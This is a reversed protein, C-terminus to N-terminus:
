HGISFKISYNEATNNLIAIYNGNPLYSTNYTCSNATFNMQVKDLLQGLSNYIRLQYISNFGTENSPISITINDNAPNPAISIKPKDDKINEMGTADEVSVDDILYYSGAIGGPTNLVTQLPTHADDYFNGITLFQEGGLATYYGSIETWGATDTLFAIARVQPLNHIVFDQMSHQKSNSIFAGICNIATIKKYSYFLCFGGPLSDYLSVYFNIL